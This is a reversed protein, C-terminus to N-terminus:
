RVKLAINETTASGAKPDFSFTFRHSRARYDTTTQTNHGRDPNMRLSGEFTGDKQASFSELAISSQRDRTLEAVKCARQM